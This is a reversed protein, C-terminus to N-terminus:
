RGARRLGYGRNMAADIKNGGRIMMDSVVDEIIVRVNGNGDEQKRTQASSNNIIQINVSNGSGGMKDMPTIRAPGHIIEPGAEGAIGWKGAGLNGGDAYLGGFTMGGVNIGAGGGGALSGAAIGLVKLLSSKILDAAIQALTQSISQAMSKFADKVSMTGTILGELATSLSNSITDAMSQFADAAANTTPIGSDMEDWLEQFTKTTEELQKSFGKGYIDDVSGAKAIKPVGSTKPMSPADILPKKPIVKDVPLGGGPINIELPKKAVLGLYRLGETLMDIEKRTTEIFPKLEAFFAITDDVWQKVPAGTQALDIFSQTLEILKPLVPAVAQQLLASFATQLKTLNDNFEEAQRAAEPTVVGGFRDLQDGAEKIAQSGGNLLPIMEAGAKGFLAIAIATKNAGDRMSAFDDAINLIIESTPRLQGQANTASIGLARLASGADNKGGAGIEALNKSFKAVTSNLDNLSVDSLKAAYELKSLEAVPIGIKQASKGLEDMHDITSKLVSGLAGLSLAGFAGAAFTKLAQMSRTIGGIGKEVSAFAQATKNFAVIDIGLRQTTAM